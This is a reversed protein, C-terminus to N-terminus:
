QGWTRRAARARGSAGAVAVEGVKARRTAILQAAAKPIGLRACSGVDILSREGRLQSVGLAEEGFQRQARRFGGVEEEVPAEVRGPQTAVPREGSRRATCHSHVWRM